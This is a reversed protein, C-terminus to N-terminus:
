NKRLLFSFSLAVKGSAVTGGAALWRSTCVVVLSVVAVGIADRKMTGHLSIFSGTFHSFAQCDSTCLRNLEAHWVAVSDPQRAYYNAYWRYGLTRSHASCQVKPSQRLACLGYEMNPRSDSCFGCVYPVGTYILCQLYFMGLSFITDVATCAISSLTFSLGCSRTKALLDQDRSQDQFTFDKEQNHLFVTM